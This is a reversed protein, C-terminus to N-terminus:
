PGETDWQGAMFRQYKLKFRRWQRRISVEARFYVVRFNHSYEFACYYLGGFIIASLTLVIWFVLRKGTEDYIPTDEM